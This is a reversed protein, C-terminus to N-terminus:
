SIHSITSDKVCLMNERCFADNSQRSDHMECCRSRRKLCLIDSVNLPLTVTHKPMVPLVKGQFLLVLSTRSCNAIHIAIGPRVRPCSMRRRFEEQGPRSSEMNLLLLLLTMVFYCGFLSTTGRSTM